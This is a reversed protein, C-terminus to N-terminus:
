LIVMVQSLQHKRQKWHFHLSPAKRQELKKFSTKNSKREKSTIMGDKGKEDLRDKEKNLVFFHNGTQAVINDSFFM